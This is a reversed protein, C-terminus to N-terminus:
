KKINKIRAQLTGNAIEECLLNCASYLTEFTKEYESLGCGYPDAIPFFGYLSSFDTAKNTKLSKAILPTMCIIVDFKKEMDPSYKKSSFDGANIGHYSLVTAAFTNMGGGDLAATGASGVEANVLKKELLNKLIYEAMPSRCTNGTCVFLIKM